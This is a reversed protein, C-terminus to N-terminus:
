IPLDRRLIHRFYWHKRLARRGLALTVEEAAGGFLWSATDCFSECCYERWARTRADVDRASLGRKRWEASWGMEGRTRARMEARLLAEWDLRRRNGLRVWVFHFLEHILIRDHERKDRYLQKDLIIIRERIFTAAHAPNGVTDILDAQYRVEIPEGSLALM